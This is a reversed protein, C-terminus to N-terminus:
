RKLRKARQQIEYADRCEANCFPRNGCDDGCKINHCTGTIPVGAVKERARAIAEETAVETFELGREGFDM